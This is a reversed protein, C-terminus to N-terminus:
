NLTNRQSGPSPFDVKFGCSNCSLQSINKVHSICGFGVWGVDWVVYGM